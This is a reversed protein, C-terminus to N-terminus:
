CNVELCQEQPLCWSASTHFYTKCALFLFQLNSKKLIWMRPPYWKCVKVLHLEPCVFCADFDVVFCSRGLSLFCTWLSFDSHGKLSSFTPSCCVIPPLLNWLLPSKVSPLWHGAGRGVRTGGKRGWGLVPQLLPGPRCEFFLEEEAPVWARYATM